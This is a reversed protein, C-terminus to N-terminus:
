GRHRIVHSVGMGHSHPYTGAKCVQSSGASVLASGHVVPLIGVQVCESMM